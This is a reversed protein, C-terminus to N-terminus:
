GRRRRRVLARVEALTVGGSAFLLLPYLAGGVVSVLVIAVEKSGIADVIAPRYLEAAFLLLGLGVSAAFVRVIRGWAAKSPRYLGRRSLAAVMQFITIWTAISTAAAIGEFGIVYFLGIGLVVNVAVSILAFRMPARTDQRAFFIPSMVRLLVFAPVGWGYHFLADATARADAPMFEGRTFLADILFYPMAMLAAAAPLTLALAFVIAQDTASQADDKDEAQLAQSLRPLLAM